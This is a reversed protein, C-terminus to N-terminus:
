EKDRFASLLLAMTVAWFLLAAWFQTKMSASWEASQNTQNAAVPSIQIYNGDPLELYGSAGLGPRFPAAVVCDASPMLGRTKVQNCTEADLKLEYIDTIRTAINWILFMGTLLCGIAAIIKTDDSKNRLEM